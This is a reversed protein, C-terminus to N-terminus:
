KYDHRFDPDLNVQWKKDTPNESIIYLNSNDEGWIKWTLTQPSTQGKIIPCSSCTLGTEYGLAIVKEPPNPVYDISEGTRAYNTPTMPEFDKIKRRLEDYEEDDTIPEIHYDEGHLGGEMVICSSKPIIVVPRIPRTVM